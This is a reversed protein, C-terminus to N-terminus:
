GVRRRVVFVYLELGIVQGVPKMSEVIAYTHAKGDWSSSYDTLQSPCAHVSNSVYLEDVTKFELRSAEAAVEEPQNDGSAIPKPHESKGTLLKAEIIKSILQVLHKVVTVEFSPPPNGTPAMKMAAIASALEMVDENPVVPSLGPSNPPPNPMQPSLSAMTDIMETLSM